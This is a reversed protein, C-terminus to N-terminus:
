FNFQASIGAGTYQQKEWYYNVEGRLAVPGLRFAMGLNFAAGLAIDELSYASNKGTGADTLEVDYKSYRMMPGFGFFILSDRSQPFYTELLMDAIFLWGSASHGTSKEYYGPAGPYLLFNVETPILGSIAVDTGAMKVGFFGLNERPKGGMTEEQFNIQAYQAGIYRSFEFPRRKKPPEEEPASSKKKKKAATVKPFDTKFLPKVDSDAIYGLMGKKVRIKYFAGNYLGKSVYFVKGPSLTAIISSDFNAKEFVEAEDSIVEAQYPYNEARAEISIWVNLMLFFLFIWLKM